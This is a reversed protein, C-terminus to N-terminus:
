GNSYPLTAIVHLTNYAQPSLVYLCKIYGKLIRSMYALRVVLALITNKSLHFVFMSFVTWETLNLSMSPVM